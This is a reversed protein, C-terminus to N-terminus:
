NEYVSIQYGEYPAYRFSKKFVSSAWVADEHLPNSYLLRLPRQNRQLSHAFNKLVQEMVAAPFPNYMFVHTYDDLQTFETADALFIKSHSIKLKQLNKRAADVLSPSIEVGDVRRFPFRAMTAIAGAKGSGIDLASDNPTINLQRLLDYLLPGGGDKHYNARGSNLGLEQVSVVGFDLGRM